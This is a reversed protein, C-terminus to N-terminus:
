EYDSPNPFIQENPSNWAWETYGFGDRNDIKCPYADTMIGGWIRKSCKFVAGNDFIPVGYDGNQHYSGTFKYGKAKLEKVIIKRIIEYKSFYNVGGIVEYMEKYNLDDWDTWGIIKM